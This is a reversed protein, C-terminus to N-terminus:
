KTKSHGKSHHKKGGQKGSESKDSQDPSVPVAIAGADQTKIGAPAPPDIIIFDVRRNKARGDATKNDAIPHDPGFGQAELRGQDIGHEVLWKMVSKARRDSLDRNHAPKGRNDTHGEVRVKKINKAARLAEAVSELVEFSQQLIVDKNTAFFVPKVIVIQGSTVSVLGPCGNKKPDTSPAGPTDPCADVPDQVTDKDRDGAPCGKRNPDPVSGQHVDPCLDEFDYVGDKDRDGAPCGLRQPDPHDGKPEDPCLDENDLIGDGDRDGVPCGLRSPDPHPGKHVDPCLDENDLVGDGDRDGIPCGLRNPDPHPGKHVDPCLDDDDLIGDHDRDKPAEKDKPWPAYSIRLLVRGDPTGAQRLIGVGGGLGLQLVHAVNYHIGLLAEVNTTSVKFANDGLIATSAVVEPGIAFRINTNAYAIAAGLQLESNSEAGLAPDGITSHSRLLVGGTLSWLVKSSLGGLVLKPLGRVFTDSSTSPIDDPFFQRWPVWIEGGISISFASRYPQGYLRVMLGFRLDGVSVRDSASAGAASVGGKDVLVVPLSATLMVRDLFSGALDVHGILQHAIVANLQSFGGDSNLTGFVLPNHAYNLTIGAAFYRTSSYWPHDVWFSWEGAATPEYRNIQFGTNATSQAYAPAASALMAGLLVYLFRSLKRM